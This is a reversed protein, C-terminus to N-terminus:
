SVNWTEVVVIADDVVASRWFWALMSVTHALFGLAMMVALTAILSVPIADRSSRLAGARSFLFVVAIVLLLAEVLTVLVDHM